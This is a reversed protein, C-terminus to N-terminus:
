KLFKKVAIMVDKVTILNMDDSGDSPKLIVSHPSLPKWRTDNMPASNPFFCIINKKLAGAIHLPGTSNSIFLGSSDILILLEKLDTYGALNIIRDGLKQPVQNILNEIKPYEDEVGTFVIKYKEYMNLFEEALKRFNEASWDAASGRSFPHIIIYRDSVSLGRVNLKEQLICKERTTYRFKYIIGSEIDPSIIKLLNLNYEYEHKACHKRHEFVKKNYLLSYWRYATGVRYKIRCLFFMVALIFRPYAVFVMDFNGSRIIKLGSLFNSYDDIFILSDIDEYNELLRGVNRRVLFTLKSDPFIKKIGSILPLTLIVDGLNDTRSVLIRVIKDKM